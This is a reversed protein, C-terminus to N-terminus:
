RHALHPTQATPMIVGGIMREFDRIPIGSSSQFNAVARDVANAGSGPCRRQVSIDPCIVTERSLFQMCPRCEGNERFLEKVFVASPDFVMGFAIGSNAFLPVADMKAGEMLFHYIDLMQRGEVPREGSMKVKQKPQIVPLGFRAMGLQEAFCQLCSGFEAGHVIFRDAPHLGNIASLLKQFNSRNLYGTEEGLSGRYTDLCVCREYPMQTQGRVNPRQADEIEKSYTCVVPTQGEKLLVNVRVAVVNKFFLVAQIAEMRSCCLSKDLSNLLRDPWGVHVFVEHTKPDREQGKRAALAMMELDEEEIHEAFGELDKRL